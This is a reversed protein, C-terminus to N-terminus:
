NRMDGPFRGEHQDRFTDARALWLAEKDLLSIFKSLDMYRRLKEKEGLEDDIEIHVQQM